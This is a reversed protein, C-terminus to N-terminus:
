ITQVLRPYPSHAFHPGSGRADIVYGPIGYTATASPDIPGTQWGSRPDTLNDEFVAAGSEPTLGPAHVHAAVTPAAAHRTMVLAVATGAGGLMLIAVATVVALVVPRRRRPRPALQSPPPPPPAE